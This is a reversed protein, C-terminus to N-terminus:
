FLLTPQYAKGKWQFAFTLILLKVKGDYLVTFSKAASCADFFKSEFQYGLLSETNDNFTEKKVFKMIHESIIMDSNPFNLSITFIEKEEEKGYGLIYCYGDLYVWSSLFEKLECIPLPLGTSAYYLFFDTRRLRKAYSTFRSMDEAFYFTSMTWNEIKREM